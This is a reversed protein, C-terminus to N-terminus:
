LRLATRIPSAAIDAVATQSVVFSIHKGRIDTTCDCMMVM